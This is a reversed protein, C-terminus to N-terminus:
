DSAVHTNWLHILMGPVRRAASFRSGETFLLFLITFWDMVETNSSIQLDVNTLVKLLKLLERQNRMSWIQTATSPPSRLSTQAQINLVVCNSGFRLVHKIELRQLSVLAYIQIVELSFSSFFCVHFFGTQYKFITCLLGVRFSILSASWPTGPEM